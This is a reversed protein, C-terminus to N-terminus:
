LGVQSILKAYNKYKEENLMTMNNKNLLSGYRQMVKVEIYKGIPKFKHSFKEQKVLRDIEHKTYITDEPFLPNSKELSLKRYLNGLDNIFDVKTFYLNDLLKEKDIKGEQILRYLEDAAHKEDYRNEGNIAKLCRGIRTMLWGEGTYLDVPGCYIKYISYDTPHLLPSFETINKIDYGMGRPTNKNTIKIFNSKDTLKKASIDVIEKLDELHYEELFGVMKNLESM